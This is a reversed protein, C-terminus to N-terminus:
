LFGKQKLKASYLQWSSNKGRPIDVIANEQFQDQITASSDKEGWEQTEEESKKEQIVLETWIEITVNPWHNFKNSMSLLEELSGEGILIDDWSVGNKRREKIFDRVQDYILDEYM